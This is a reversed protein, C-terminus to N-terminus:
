YHQPAKKCLSHCRKINVDIHKRSVSKQAM